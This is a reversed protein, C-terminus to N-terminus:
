ASRSHDQDDERVLRRGELRYKPGTAQEIAMEARQELTQCDPCKMGLPITDFLALIAWDAVQDQDNPIPKRCSICKDANGSLGAEILKLWDPKDNNAM